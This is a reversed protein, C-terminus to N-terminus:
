VHFVEQREILIKAILKGADLDWELPYSVNPISQNIIRNTEHIIKEQDDSVLYNNGYVLSDTRHTAERCTICPIGLYTTEDQIGSSDTIVFRANKLVGLYEHYSMTNVLKLNKLSALNVHDSETLARNTSAYKIFILPTERQVEKIGKFINDLRGPSKLNEERHITLLGYNKKKLGLEQLVSTSAFEIHEKLASIITNGVIFVDEQDFRENLLNNRAIMSPCFLFQSFKDIILRNIEETDNLDNNRLGAEVHVLPINKNLSSISAAVSPNLDGYVIVVNPKIFTLAKNLEGALFKINLLYEDSTPYPLIVTPDPLKLESYIKKGYGKQFVGTDIIVHEIGAQILGRHVPEAKIINPRGGIVSLARM